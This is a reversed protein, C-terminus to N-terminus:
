QALLACNETAYYGLPRLGAGYGCPPIWQQEGVQWVKRKPVLVCPDPVSLHWGEHTIHPFRVRLSPLKLPYKM